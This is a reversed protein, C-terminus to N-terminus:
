GLILNHVPFDFQPVATNVLRYRPLDELRLSSIGTFVLRELNILEVNCLANKSLVYHRM